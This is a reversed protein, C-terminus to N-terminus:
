QSAAAFAVAPDKQAATALDALQDAPLARPSVRVKYFGGAPGSVISGHRADLFSEIRPGISDVTYKGQDGNM